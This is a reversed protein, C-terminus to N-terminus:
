NFIELGSESLRYVPIEVWGSSITAVLDSIIGLNKCFDVMGDNESYDKIAICDDPIQCGPNITVRAIPEGEYESGEAGMLELALNGNGYEGKVFQCKYHGYNFKDKTTMTKGKKTGNLIDGM